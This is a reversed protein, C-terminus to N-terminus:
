TEVRSKALWRLVKSRGKTLLVVEDAALRLVPPSPAFQQPGLTCSIWRRAAEEVAWTPCDELAMRYAALMLEGSDAMMPQGPFASLLFILTKTQAEPRDDAGIMELRDSDRELQQRMSDTLQTQPKLLGNGQISSILTVYDQPLSQILGVERASPASQRLPVVNQVM